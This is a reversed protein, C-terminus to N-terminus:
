GILRSRTHSGVISRLLDFTTVIGLLQGHETVLARHVHCQLMFYALEPLTAEPTVMLPGPTMIDEVQFEYWPATGDHPDHVAARLVIDTASVVGVTRGQATIVPVGSIHEQALLQVLERVTADPRIGIVDTQMTDRVTLPRGAAAAGPDRAIM